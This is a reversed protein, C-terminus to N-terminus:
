PLPPCSWRLVAGAPFTAAGRAGAAELGGVSGQLTRVSGDVRSTVSATATGTPIDASMTAQETITWTLNGRSSVTAVTRDAWHCTVKGSVGHMPIEAPVVAEVTGDTTSGPVIRLGNGYGGIAGVFFLGVAVVSTASWFAARALAVVLAIMLILGGVVIVISELGPADLGRSSGVFFVFLGGLFGLVLGALGARLRDVVDAKLRV